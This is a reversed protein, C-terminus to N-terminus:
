APVEVPRYCALIKPRLQDNTLPEEIWGRPGVHAFVPPPNRCIIGAHGGGNGTKLLVVDGIELPAHEALVDFYGSAEIGGQLASIAPGNIAEFRRYEPLQFSAPIQGVARLIHLWAFCDGAVGPVPNNPRTGCHMWRTGRWRDTELQLAGCRFMNSFYPRRQTM